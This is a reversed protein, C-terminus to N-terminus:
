AASRSSCRCELRLLRARQLRDQTLMMQDRVEFYDMTQPSGGDGRRYRDTGADFQNLALASSCALRRGAWLTAGTGPPSRHRSRDSDAVYRNTGTFHFAARDLYTLVHAAAHAVDGDDNVAPHLIARAQPQVPRG